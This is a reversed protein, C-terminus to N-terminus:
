QLRVGLSAAWESIRAKEEEIGPDGPLLEDAEHIADHAPRLSERVRILRNAYAYRYLLKATQRDEPQWTAEPYEDKRFTFAGNVAMMLSKAIGRLESFRNRKKMERLCHESAKAGDGACYYENGELKAQALDAIVDRPYEYVQDKSGKRYPAILQEALTESYFSQPKWRSRDGRNKHKIFAKPFPDVLVAKQVLRNDYDPIIGKLYEIIQCFIDIDQHLFVFSWTLESDSNVGDSDDVSEVDIIAHEMVHKKFRDINRQPGMKLIPLQKQAVIRQALALETNLKVFLNQAVYQLIPRKM